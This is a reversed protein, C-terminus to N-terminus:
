NQKTGGYIALLLEAPSATKSVFSEAGAELMVQRNNDDEHMSLGIVRIGPMESKIIRTAEIGNIQPMNIDMVIVDPKLYRAQEIAEQGNAAEGIFQIDPQGAILKILGQRMVQHDDVFLVRTSGTVIPNTLLAPPSNKPPKSCNLHLDEDLVVMKLPVKLTFRSGKGPASEITLNAGIYDAREQITLLGLGIRSGGKDIKEPDFGQGQDSVSIAFFGNSTSLDICASKVGAHKVINFLLEQVARFLFVKLPTSELVMDTNKKIDIVLGFQEKIQGSLWKLSAVLGSHHLVAPSLEHSLRRTKAISDKLIQLVNNLMMENPFNNSVAQLQMKAAALMQQLDDHLLNAMRRREQEEAAILQVALAQLQRSRAQALETRESVRQELTENLQLLAKETKKINTIDAGTTIFHDGIPVSTFRFYKDLHPFYDEFTHPIGEAIIKEVMPLYHETAGPGFIEDTTKGKIEDVTKKDWTKLAPPNVDVLRWTKIQGTEDRIVQWFHVEETMNEFLTRYKTESERLTKEAKRRETIDRFILVVGLIQGAEDRIPAASDDIPVEGGDKRLLVTHNALGVVIGSTLVKRVPDDVVKRSYENVIRFVDQVPKGGAEAMHWGTLMEAVQNLFTIRGSTDTAIVADGISSLTISWRQESVRLAEEARKREIIEQRLGANAHDLRKLNEALEKEKQTLKRYLIDQPKTLSTEIIALYVFFFSAIQLFHGAANTIGFPDAYM